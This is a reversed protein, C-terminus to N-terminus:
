VSNESLILAVFDDIGDQMRVSVFLSQGDLGARERCQSQMATNKM